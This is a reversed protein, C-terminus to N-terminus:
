GLQKRELAKTKYDSVFKEVVATTIEGEPGKYWAGNDAIDVLMLRPPFILPLENPQLPLRAMELSGRIQNSLTEASTVIMFGIDPNEEGKAKSEENYKKALPVMAEEMAKQAAAESTECFVLITPVENIAGPGEKLNSVPKPHWPFEAGTPDNTISSRGDKTIVSGDADIIVISPISEVGFLNFLDEKAKRNEFDLALWPQEAFYDKFSQKDEDDSVFVVEFGKTKLDKSYWEALKPAFGRCPPCWHGGFYLGFVKGKLSSGLSESGEPGLLKASSFIDEFSQPRWPMEEGSPDGSIAARGDKTILKGDPGLVVVTPIGQV